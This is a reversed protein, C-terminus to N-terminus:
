DSGKWLYKESDRLSSNGILEACSSLDAMAYGSETNGFQHTSQQNKNMQCNKLCQISARIDGRPM